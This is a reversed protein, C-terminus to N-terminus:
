LLHAIERKDNDLSRVEISDFHGMLDSVDQFQTDLQRFQRAAFRVALQEEIEASHKEVLAEM